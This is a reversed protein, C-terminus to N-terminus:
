TRGWVIQSDVLAATYEFFRDTPSDVIQDQHEYRRERAVELDILRSEVSLAIRATEAGEEITMVDMRGRFLLYPDAILAGTSVDLAAQHINCTRGQYPEQLALSVLASPIGSLTVDVGTARVEATEQVDAVAMLTGAGSWTQGSWSLDGIGTWLRVAGSDFLAEVMTVPVVVGALTAAELAPTLSRPV